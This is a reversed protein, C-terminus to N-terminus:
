NFSIPFSIGCFWNGALYGWQRKKAENLTLLVLSYDPVRRGSHWTVFDAPYTAFAEDAIEYIDARMRRANCRLLVFAIQPVLRSWAAKQKQYSERQSQVMEAEFQNASEGAIIQEMSKSM